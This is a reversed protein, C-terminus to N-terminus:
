EGEGRDAPDPVPGNGHPDPVVTVTGADGDVTIRQDDRLRETAARTGLVAPIRYERAVISSHSLPGGVDTVVGSALAFLPTWAPTTIKAVLVDGPRMRDFEAPGHIVRAPASVRGPSGPTGQLVDSSTSGSRAFDIGLIKAATAPLTHPPTVARQAQWAARREVVTDRADHPAQGADLAAAAAALEDYQFWFVDDVAEISGATVLRQGITRLLHRVTLWGLGVDALADERLPAMRRAWRLLKVVAWRRVGPRRATLRRDARNGAEATTRQREHPDPASGTLFFALAQVVPAPEEAPLPKAFDLDYVTDGFASLHAAFREALERWTEADGGPPAGATDVLALLEPGSLKALRDDHDGSRQRLWQALDYLAQEARVPKSDSGLLFTTAAPDDRRKLLKYVATFMSESTYAAPLVGGQIALYYRAAEDVLERAGDLLRVAPACSVDTDCWRADLEAYRMHAERWRSEATRLSRPLTVALFRPQALAMRTLFGASYSIDYYLYGNIVRLPNDLAPLGIARYHDVTAKAWAPIGLTAFLPSLPDPLLEAVSGRIYKGKPDPLEWQEAPLPQPGPTADPLATIPRAQVIYPRGDHMAWEIDMPQGYLQEIRVAIRTLEAVDDPRLVPQDRLHAPVPEEHTGETTRVTMLRKDGIEQRVIAGDAKAVLLMDPTVQGGVISEGLGWAANVMVQGRDGTMPNATFLVGAADAPVLEQVVVALAVDASAIGQRARYGIARATWLSAWCRKVAALVDPEGQINLYTDQQGAFSMEPLDEATASSRVAVAVDHGGLRGYAEGVAQAIVQPMPQAAFLDAIERAAAEWTAPEDSSAAAAALLIKEQLGQVAVFQRYAATTAHFGQPVPFKAAAMRALSAGKGGVRELEATPDDLVLVLAEGDQGGPTVM